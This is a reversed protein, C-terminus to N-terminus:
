ILDVQMSKFIGIEICNGLESVMDKHDVANGAFHIPNEIRIRKLNKQALGDYVQHLMADSLYGMNHNQHRWIIVTTPSELKDKMFAYDNVCLNSLDIIPDQTFFNKCKFTNSNFFKDLGKYTNDSFAVGTIELNCITAGRLTRLSTDDTSIDIKLRDIYGLGKTAKNIPGRLDFEKVFEAPVNWKEINTGCSPVEINIGTKSYPFNDFSKLKDCMPIISPSSMIRQYKQVNWEYKFEPPLVGNELLDPDEIYTYHPLKIVGNEYCAFFGSIVSPMSNRFVDLCKQKNFTEVWGQAPADDIGLNGYISEQVYTSLSNM